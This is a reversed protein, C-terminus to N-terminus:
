ELLVFDTWLWNVNASFGTVVGDGVGVSVGAGTGTGTGSLAWDTDPTCLFTFAPFRNVKGPNVEALMGIAQVALGLRTQLTEPACRLARFLPDHM